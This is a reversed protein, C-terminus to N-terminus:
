FPYICSGTAPKPQRLALLYQCITWVVGSKLAAKILKLAAKILAPTFLGVKAM